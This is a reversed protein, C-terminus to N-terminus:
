RHPQTLSPQAVHRLEIIWRRILAAFAGVTILLGLTNEM